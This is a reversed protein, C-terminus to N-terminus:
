RGHWYRPSRRRYASVSAADGLDVDIAGDRDTRWDRRDGYRAVVDARPHGFRNRYGVPYIVERPDVAAIFAPTSSTRSGHHPVLLVDARLESAADALLQREDVAEIDSTLLLSAQAADIRLVCSLHNARGGKAAAGPTPHLIRFRVGDWHWTRGAACPESALAPVSSVVSAVPLGALVSAAGGAHDSDGHTVLLMDLRDIGAARLYPLVIRQGADSEASYLPGTDYLLTRTATRVVVALGQGVDLVTVHASGPVPRSPGVTLAPLLMLAGLWRGPLGRPLLLWVVGAVALLLLGTPPAPVQLLPWDALWGLYDMVRALLWHDLQLLGPLPLVAAVLALPTVLLSVVPIAVANALPSVLSFQQFFCLLLPLTGVTVAWQALTWRALAARWSRGAGLRDGAAYLLMSVAGFSLWFGPAM